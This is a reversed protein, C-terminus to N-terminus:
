YWNKQKFHNWAKTPNEYRGKIYDIGWNIQTKYNTLYDEGYAKMKSAPCAQPIGYAGSRNGATVNWGSEKEWLSVLNNYDAESWNEGNCKEKAYSKYDDKSM